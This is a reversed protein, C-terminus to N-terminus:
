RLETWLLHLDISTIVIILHKGLFRNYLSSVTPVVAMDGIWKSPSWTLWELTVEAANFSYSELILNCRLTDLPFNRLDMECPAESRIRYNLWTTGNPFIMLLINPKPSDHVKTAKSNVICVNPSWLKPEMDHDLSLNKRCPDITEFQLRSDLWIASIWFDIVFTGTIASIDSIDQITIEVVVEVPSPDPLANRSYNHMLIHALDQAKTENTTSCSSNGASASLFLQLLVSQISYLMGCETRKYLAPDSLRKEVRLGAETQAREISADGGSLPLRTSSLARGSRRRAWSTSKHTFTYTSRNFHPGRLTGVERCEPRQNPTTSNRKRFMGILLYDLRSSYLPLHM